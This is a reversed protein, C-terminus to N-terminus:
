NQPIYTKYKKSNSNAHWINKPHLFKPKYLIKPTSIYLKTGGETMKGGLVDGPHFNVIFHISAEALLVKRLM